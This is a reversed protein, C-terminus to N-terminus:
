IYGQDGYETARRSMPSNPLEYVRDRAGRGSVEVAAVERPPLEAKHVYKGELESIINPTESEKYVTKM